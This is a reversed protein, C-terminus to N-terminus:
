ANSVSSYSLRYLVDNTIVLDHTRIGNAAGSFERMGQPHSLKKSIPNPPSRYHIVTRPVTLAASSRARLRSGFGMLLELFPPIGRTPMGGKRSMPNTPATMSRRKKPQPSIDTVGSVHPRGITAGVLSSESSASVRASHNKRSDTAFNNSLRPRLALRAPSPARFFSLGAPTKAFPKVFAGARAIM